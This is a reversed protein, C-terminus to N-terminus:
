VETGGVTLEAIRFTPGGTTVPVGQGDKGCTGEEFGLDNGVADILELTRPGNGILTAGRVAPGLRGNEILYGESVGFVYDGTAPDVQGGGMKAAYLGKPTSSIIDAPDSDGPEIYTNSMRPVPAFRFSQRRGNGTSETADKMAEHRAYLFERLIGKEILITHRSPTGEDDFEYSGWLGPLTPNDSATVVASAVQRDVKGAYVSAGKHVHDIELGHGSAEHLLVGGTGSNMVVAMKGTPSPRAGLMTLARRAAVVAVYAPDHEEYFCPGSLSGPAEQGIQILGERSAVVQVVLRTRQCSDGRVEGLSNAFLAEEVLSNHMATVQRVEGSEARAAEDCAALYEVVNGVDHSGPDPKCVPPPASRSSVVVELTRGGAAHRLAEAATRAAKLLHERDLIDTHAYATLDGKIVRVGAGIDVGISLDDLKGDEYRVMQVSRRQCLVDSYAGGTELAAKAAEVALETDLVTL